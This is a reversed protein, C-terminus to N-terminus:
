SPCKVTFRKGMIWVPPESRLAAAVGLLMQRKLSLSIARDERSLQACPRFDGTEAGSQNWPCAIEFMRDGPRESVKTEQLSGVAPQEQKAALPLFYIVGVVMTTFATFALVRLALGGGPMRESATQSRFALRIRGGDLM